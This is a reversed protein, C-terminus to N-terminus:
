PAVPSGGPSLTLEDVPRMVPDSPNVAEPEYAAVAVTDSPAAEDFELKVHVTVFV